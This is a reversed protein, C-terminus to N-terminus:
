VLRKPWPIARVVLARSSLPLGGASYWNSAWVKVTVSLALNHIGGPPGLGAVWPRNNPTAVMGGASSQCPIDRAVPIRFARRRCYRAATGAGSGMMGWVSCYGM